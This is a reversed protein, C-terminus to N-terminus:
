ITNSGKRHSQAMSVKRIETKGRENEAQIYDM